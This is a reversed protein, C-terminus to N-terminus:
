CLSRLLIWIGSSLFKDRTNRRNLVLVRGSFIDLIYLHDNVDIKFSRPVFASPSTVGEADVYGKFTGEPSLRV